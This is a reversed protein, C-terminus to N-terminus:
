EEEGELEGALEKPPESPPETLGPIDLEIDYKKALNKLLEYAWTSLAGSMAFYGMSQVGTWAPDAMEPNKWFAGLVVGAAVPHLVMTKRGWWWFWIPKKSTANKKTWVTKKVIQGILMAVLMWAFFPWHGVIYTNAFEMIEDM